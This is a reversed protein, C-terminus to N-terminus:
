AEDQDDDSEDTKEGEKDDSGKTHDNVDEDDSSNWSLEEESNDSPVDPVGPISGTGEDISSGGQQSIHMEHRSRRLVIKLQETETREVDSPDTPSTARAPQKGKAAASQRPAAVVTTTPTPTAIPTPPTTSSASGGKKRKPVRRQNQCQRELPVLMTSRILRPTGLFSWSRRKLHYSLLLNAWFGLVSICCKGLHKWILLISKPTWKSDSPTNIFRLQPRSNRCTSKLYMQWLLSHRRGIRLRKASPVLTEDLTVQQEIM